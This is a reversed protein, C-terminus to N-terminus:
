TEELIVTQTWTFTAVSPAQADTVFTETGIAIAERGPDFKSADLARVTAWNLDLEAAAADTSSGQLLVVHRNVVTSGPPPVTSGTVTVEGDIIKLPTDFNSNFSM